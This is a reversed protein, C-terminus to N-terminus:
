QRRARLSRATSYALGGSHRCRIHTVVAMYTALNLRRDSRRSLRHITRNGCSVEIPATGNYAALHDQGPGRDPPM